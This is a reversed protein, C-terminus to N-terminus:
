KTIELYEIIDLFKWDYSKNSKRIIFDTWTM